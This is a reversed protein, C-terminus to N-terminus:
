KLLYVAKGWIIIDENNIGIIKPEKENTEIEAYEKDIEFAGNNMKLKTIRMYSVGIKYAIYLSEENDCFIEKTNPIYDFNEIFQVM